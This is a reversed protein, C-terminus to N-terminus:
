KEGEKKKLHRPTLDVIEETEMVILYRPKPFRAEPHRPHGKEGSLNRVIRKTIRNALKKEWADIIRSSLKDTKVIKAKGKLCFGKFKHEDVATLSINPNRKLNAFTKALYLDLLYIRGNPQINIIGKCSNHVRHKRDITSVVTFAQRHFFQIVEDSLHKMKRRVPYRKWRNDAASM